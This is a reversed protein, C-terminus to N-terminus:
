ADTSYRVGAVLLAHSYTQADNILIDLPGLRAVTEDILRETDDRESRPALGSTGVGARAKSTLREARGVTMM